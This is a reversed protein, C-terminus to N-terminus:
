ADRCLSARTGINSSLPVSYYTGDKCTLAPNLHSFTGLSSEYGPVTWVHVMWQSQKMLQGHVTDCQQKSVEQDAGYPLDIGGNTYVLCLGTHYHWVDNPGAFGQPEARSMSYYMLGSVRSTPDIGDYIWMIPHRLDNDDVVGDSNLSVVADSFKMYHAGLGPIFPGVRHFGAAEINKVTPYQLAVTRTIALQRALEVRTAPDVPKEFAPTHQHGNELLSFGRDDVAATHTHGTAAAGAATPQASAPTAARQGVALTNPSADKHLARGFAYFGAVLTVAAVLAIAAPAPSPARTQRADVVAV